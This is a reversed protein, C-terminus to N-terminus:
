HLEATVLMRVAAATWAASKAAEDENGLAKSLHVFDTAARQLGVRNLASAAAEVRVRSPERSRRLGQHALDACM